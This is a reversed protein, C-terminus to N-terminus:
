IIALRIPPALVRSPEDVFGPTQAALTRALWRSSAFKLM